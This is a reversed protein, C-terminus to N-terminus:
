TNVNKGRQELLEISKRFVNDPVSVMANELYNKLSMCEPGGDYYDQVYDTVLIDFEDLDVYNDDYSSSYPTDNFDFRIM